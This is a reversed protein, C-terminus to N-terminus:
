VPIIITFTAGKDLKSDAIIVGGHNEIIKKCISLGIGTGEYENKNNLRQFIAFVKESFVEDFGIGNDSFSIRLYRNAKTINTLTLSGPRLYDYRVTIKPQVGSKIFKLSNSILNQFVQRFQSPIVRAEPLPQINLIAKNEEIKDELTLIVDDLLAQLNTQEFTKEGSLLSVSLLDNIMQQMRVSSQIIKELFKKGDPDLKQKQTTILRDGFTSIKRLPEKLDHSAVYAFEELNANSQELERTKQMLINEIEKRRSIDLAAGLVELIKGDRDRKFVIERILLWRWKGDRHKMRCEFQFLSQPQDSNNYDHFRQPIMVADDPHYLERIVNGGLGIMEESTYGLVSEIEKNIYIISGQLADFLYLVTPSADAIHKIFREQERVQQETLQQQTVDQATGFIQIAKGNKDSVVEGRIHLSKITGDKWQNRHYMEFPAKAKIAQFTFAKVLARDEPHVMEMFTDYSLVISQPELGYIRYLEDTWFITNNELDISWNGIHALAQAQKYLAESQQLREILHQRETVDQVTGLIKSPKSEIYQVEGRAHLIKQTQNALIIRYHFDFPQGSEIAQQIQQNIHERDDPHRLVETINRTIITGEKLGYIRYMEDSWEVQDSELDWVYKGIHTIAQAQKFSEESAKLQQNTIALQDQMREKFHMEENLRNKLLRIFGSVSKTESELLFLDIEQVIQITESVDNTYAPLFKLFAKKRIYNILTIDESIVQDRAIIPLKDAMWRTFAEDILKQAENRSLYNLFERTTDMSMRILQEEGFQELHTLLPLHIEKSIRLQERVFAEHHDELIFAAFRPLFTFDLKGSKKQTDIVM